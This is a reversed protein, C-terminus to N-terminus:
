LKDGQQKDPCNFYVKWMEVDSKLQNYEYGSLLSGTRSYEGFLTSEIEILNVMPLVDTCEQCLYAPRAGNHFMYVIVSDVYDIKECCSLAHYYTMLQDIEQDVDPDGTYSHRYAWENCLSIPASCSLSGLCIIISLAFLMGSKLNNM